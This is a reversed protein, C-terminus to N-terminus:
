SEFQESTRFINFPVSVYEMLGQQHSSPVCRRHMVGAVKLVFETAIGNM